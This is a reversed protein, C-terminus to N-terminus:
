AKARQRNPFKLIGKAENESRRSNEKLYKALEGSMSPDSEWFHIMKGLEVARLVTDFLLEDDWPKEIFDFAGLRLAREVNASTGHASLIVFPINKGIKRIETLFELGSLVPMTIDSLIADFQFDNKYIELAQRGDGAGVTQIGIKELEECLYDLIKNEDEAILIRGVINTM